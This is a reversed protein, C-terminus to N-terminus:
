NVWLERIAEPALAAIEGDKLFRDRKADFVGWATGGTLSRAFFRRAEGRGDTTETWVIKMNRKYASM